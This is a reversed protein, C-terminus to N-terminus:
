PAQYTIQDVEPKVDTIFFGGTANPMAEDEYDVTDYHM